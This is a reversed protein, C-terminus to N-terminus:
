GEGGDTVPVGSLPDVAEVYESDPWTHLGDGGACETWATRVGPPAWAAVLRTGETLGARLKATAAEDMSEGVALVTRVPPLRDALALLDPPRGAIVTPGLRSIDGATADAPLTVIAVGG